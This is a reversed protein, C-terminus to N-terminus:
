YDRGQERAKSQQSWAPTEDKKNKDEDGGDEKTPYTMRPDHESPPHMEEITQVKQTLTRRLDTLDVTGVPKWGISIKCHRCIM